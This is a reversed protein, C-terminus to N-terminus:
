KKVIDLDTIVNNVKTKKIRFEYKEPDTPNMQILDLNINGVMECNKIILRPYVPMKSKTPYWPRGIYGIKADTIFKCYKFHFGKKFDKFTAPATFYLYESNLGVIECNNFTCDSSGFIFDIDGEIYSSSIKNNRGGDIYLTDQMGIFRCNDITLDNIESKFAVAQGSTGELRKYSNEFTIGFAKFGDAGEKVRFTASTTTTFKDIGNGGLEDPIIMGSHANYTIKTLKEGILTINKKDLEIKENYTKNELIIVDGDIAKDIAEKLSIKLINLDLM